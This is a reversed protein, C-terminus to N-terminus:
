KKIADVTGTQKQPKQQPKVFQPNQRHTFNVCLTLQFVIKRSHRARGEGRDQNPLRQPLGIFVARWRVKRKSSAGHGFIFPAHRL